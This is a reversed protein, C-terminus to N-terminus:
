ETKAEMGEVMKLLRRRIVRIAMSQVDELPTDITVRMQAAEIGVAHCTIVWENPYHRHNKSIWIWLDPTDYQWATPTRDVTNKFYTTADQWQHLKKQM